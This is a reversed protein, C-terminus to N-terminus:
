KDNSSGPPPVAILEEDSDGKSHNKNNRRHHHEITVTEVVVVVAKKNNHPKPRIILIGSETDETNHNRVQRQHTPTTNSTNPKIPPHGGDEEDMTNLVEVVMM